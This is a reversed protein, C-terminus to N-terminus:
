KRWLGRRKRDNPTPRVVKEGPEAPAKKECDGGRNVLLKLLEVLVELVTVITVFPLGAIMVAMRGFKKVRM